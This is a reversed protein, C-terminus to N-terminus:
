TSAPKCNSPYVDILCDIVQPRHFRALELADAESRRKLQKLLRVERENWIRVRFAYGLGLV